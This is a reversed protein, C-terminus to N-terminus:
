QMKRLIKGAPTMPLSEVVQVQTPCKYRPLHSRTYTYIAQELDPVPDQVVVLAKVQVLGYQDLVPVVTVQDVLQSQAIVQEVAAPDVDKGEVKFRDGSRGSFRYEGQDDITMLDGATFWSGHELKEQGHYGVTNALSRFWAIGTQGTDLVDGQDNRIEVEHSPMPKGLSGSMAQRDSPMFVQGLEGAGFIVQPATGTAQKWDLLLKVSVVEGGVYVKEWNVTKKSRLLLSLLTPGTFFYDARSEIALQQVRNPTQLGGTVVLTAGRSMTKLLIFMGWNATLPLGLQNIVGPRMPYYKKQQCVHWFSKHTHMIIKPIGKSTGSTNYYIAPDTDQTDAVRACSLTMDASNVLDQNILLNSNIRQYMDQIQEKSLRHNIMTVIMGSRIAALAVAIWDISDPLNITVKTGAPLDEFWNAQYADMRQLLQGYTYQGNDDIVALSSLDRQMAPLVDNILNFNM